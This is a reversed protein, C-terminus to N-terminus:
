NGPNNFCTRYNEPDTNGIACHLARFSQPALDKLSQHEVSYYRVWKDEAEPRATSQQYISQLSQWEIRPIQWAAYFSYEPEWDPFEITNSKALDLYYTEADSLTGDSEILLKRFAPNEGNSPSVAPTLLVFMGSGANNGMLRFEDMHTHGAFNARVTQAHANLISEFRQEFRAKWMTVPETCPQGCHKDTAFGDIGPPIHYFMWVREHAEDASRLEADIWDLLKAPVGTQDHYKSSLFNTNVSLVRYGPLPPLHASYSGLQPWNNSFDRDAAGAALHHFIPATIRLFYGGPQIQYDPGDNDNNGLTALVPTDPFTQEIQHAVFEMTKEVFKRYTTENAQPAAAQFNEQFHHAMFDGTILLFAPKPVASRMYSLASTLLWWNTDHGYSPVEVPSQSLISSWQSSPQAILRQLIEPGAAMPDFHIDSILLVQESAPPAAACEFPAVILLMPALLVAAISKIWM